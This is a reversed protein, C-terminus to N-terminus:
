KRGRREDYPSVGDGGLMEYQRTTTRSPDYVIGGSMKKLEKRGLAKGKRAPAGIKKAKRKM